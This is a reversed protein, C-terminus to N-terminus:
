NTGIPPTVASLMRSSKTTVHGSTYDPFVLSLVEVFQSRTITTIGRLKCQLVTLLRPEFESNCAVVNGGSPPAVCVSVTYFM